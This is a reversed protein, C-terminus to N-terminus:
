RIAVVIGVVTMGIGVILPVLWSLRGVSGRLESVDKALAQLTTMMEGLTLGKTEALEQIDYSTLGVQGQRPGSYGKGVAETLRFFQATLFPAEYPLAIPKPALNVLRVVLVGKFGPDIQPGSLLLLGRRAYESRLRLQGATKLDLEIRERSELVAFEGPEIVLLGKQSLDSIEKLSSTFARAGVRVDYSAPQLSQPEFPELVMERREPESRIQEDTMLM